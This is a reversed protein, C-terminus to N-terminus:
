PGCAKDAPLTVTDKGGVPLSAPAPGSAPSISAYEWTIEAARQIGFLIMLSGDPNVMGDATPPPGAAGGLRIQVRAGPPLGKDCAIGVSLYPAALTFPVALPPHDWGVSASGGLTPSSDSRADRGGFYADSARHRISHAGAHGAALQV